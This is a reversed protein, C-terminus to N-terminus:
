EPLGAKRLEDTYRIADEERRFLSRRLLPFNSIRIGPAFQIMNAVARKADENRNAKAYCAAAIARRALIIDGSEWQRFRDLMAAFAISLRNAFGVPLQGALRPAKGPQKINHILYFGRLRSAQPRDDHREVTQPCRHVAIDGIPAVDHILSTM